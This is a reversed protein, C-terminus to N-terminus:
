GQGRLYRVARRHLHEREDCHRDSHASSGRFRRRRRRQKHPRQGRGAPEAAKAADGNEVSVLISNRIDDLYGNVLMSGILANVTVDLSSGSFDMDGIVVQADDNLPTVTVVKDNEDMIIDISPNVDLTIVSVAASGDAPLDAGRGYSFGIYGGLFVLVLAAAVAIPLYRNKKKKNKVENMTIVNGKRADCAELIGSLQEPATHEALRRIRAEIKENDMM